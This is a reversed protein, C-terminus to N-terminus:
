RAATAARAAAAAKGESCLNSGSPTSQSANEIRPPHAANAWSNTTIVGRLWDWWVVITKRM